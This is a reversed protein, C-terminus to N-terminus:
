TVITPAFPSAPISGWSMRVATRGTARSAQLDGGLGSITVVYVDRSSAFLKIPGLALLGDVSAPRHEIWTPAISVPGVAVRGSVPAPVRYGDAYSVYVGPRARSQDGM